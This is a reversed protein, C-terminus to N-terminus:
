SRLKRTYILPRQACHNSRLVKMGSTMPEPRPPDYKTTPSVQKGHTVLLALPCKCVTFPLKFPGTTLMWIWLECENWHEMIMMSSKNETYILHQFTDNTSYLMYYTPAIYFVFCVLDGVWTSSNDTLKLIAHNTNTVSGLFMPVSATM